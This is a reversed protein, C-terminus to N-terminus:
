SLRGTTRNPKGESGNSGRIRIWEPVVVARVLEQVSIGRERAIKELEAYVGPNLSQMFKAQM